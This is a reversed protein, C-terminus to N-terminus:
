LHLTGAMALTAIAVADTIGHVPTFGAVYGGTGVVAELGLVLAMTTKVLFPLNARYIFGKIIKSADYQTKNYYEFLGKLCKNNNTNYLM